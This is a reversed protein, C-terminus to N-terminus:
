ASSAAPSVAYGAYSGWVARSESFKMRRGLEAHRGGCGVDLCRKGRPDVALEEVVVRRMYGLRPPNM